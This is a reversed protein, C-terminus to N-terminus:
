DEPNPYYAAFLHVAEGAPMTPYVGGRQLMVGIRQCLQQHDNIPDLDCVRVRGSSPRRYGEATEITSTKGAGNPGLVATVAAEDATFSLGDVAVVTGYTIVLEHIEVAPM